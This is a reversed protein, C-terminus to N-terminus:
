LMVPVNEVYRYYDITGKEIDLACGITNIEEM